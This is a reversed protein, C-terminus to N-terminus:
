IYLDDPKSIPRTLSKAYNFFSRITSSVLRYELPLIDAWKPGFQSVTYFYVYQIPWPYFVSANNGTYRGIYYKFCQDHINVQNHPM